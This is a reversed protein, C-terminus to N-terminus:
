KEGTWNKWDADIHAQAWKIAARAAQPGGPLGTEYINDAMDIFPNVLLTGPGGYETHLFESLVGSCIGVVDDVYDGYIDKKSLKKRLHNEFKETEADAFQPIPDPFKYEKEAKCSFGSYCRKTFILSSHSPPHATIATYVKSACPFVQQKLTSQSIPFLFGRCPASSVYCAM